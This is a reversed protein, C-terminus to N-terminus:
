LCISPNSLLVLRGLTGTGNAFVWQQAASQMADSTGTGCQCPAAVAPTGNAAASVGGYATVCRGDATRITGDGEVFRFQQRPRLAHQPRATTEGEICAALVLDTAGGLSSNFSALKRGQKGLPDQNWSIVERNTVIELVEPKIARPDIGLQLPTKILSWLTFHARWEEVSLDGNGVEQQYNTPLSTV